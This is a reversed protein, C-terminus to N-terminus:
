SKSQVEDLSPDSGVPHRVIPKQPRIDFEDGKGAGSRYYNEVGPQPRPVEREIAIM